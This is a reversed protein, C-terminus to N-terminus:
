YTYLLQYNSGDGIFDRLTDTNQTNAAFTPDMLSWANGDFRIIGDIWGIDNLYVSVWAHYASGAYGIQLRTPISCSRLLGAMLAAYDFCIGTKIKLIEDLDPLYNFAVNEAKKHDYTINSVVYHYIREVTELDGNTDASLQKALAITHPANSYDVYMNSYLFALLEDSQTCDFNGQFALSYRDGQINEYLKIEYSGNGGSIPLFVQEATINYTYKISDPGTVQLKVKPNTGHYFVSYYGSETNSIDITVHDNGVTLTGPATQLPLNGYKQNLRQGTASVEFGSTRSKGPPGSGRDQTCGLFLGSFLFLVLITSLCHVAWPRHAPKAFGSNNM